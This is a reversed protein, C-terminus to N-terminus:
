KLLNGPVSEDFLSNRDMHPVAADLLKNFTTGHNPYRLHLLEHVISYDRFQEPLGTLEASLTIVGSSSCTGWKSPLETVLIDTPNVELKVAWKQARRILEQDPTLTMRARAM